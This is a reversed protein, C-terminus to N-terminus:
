WRGQDNAGENLADVSKEGEGEDEKWSAVDVVTELVEHGPLLVLVLVDLLGTSDLSSLLGSVLFGDQRSESGFEKTM